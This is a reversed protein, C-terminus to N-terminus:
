GSEMDNRHCAAFHDTGIVQLEPKEVRCREWAHPCRTHFRCGTPPNQPSPIEGALVQRPRGRQRPDPVPVADLLAETYPHKPASYLALTPALEVLEGLYMVGVRHSIHRVVSLDHAVILLGLSRADQLDMLLNLLQAQVSVDLASVPEDCLLFDPELTLARAVGIRQRQGGSFEHPYKSLSTNGLGVSDLIAQIRELREDDAYLGHIEFPETLIQHLSHRSNLSEAPDQFVMQVSRRFAGLDTKQSPDILRDDLTVDGQTRKVLGALAKLFTSKGCGSEGVLGLTEGRQVSLSVNSVASISGVQRKLIGQLVPFDVSLQNAKLM